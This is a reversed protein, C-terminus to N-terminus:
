PYSGSSSSSICYTARVQRGLFFAGGFLDPAYRACLSIKLFHRRTTGDYSFGRRMPLIENKGDDDQRESAFLCLLCVSAFLCLSLSVSLPLSVSLSCSISVCVSIYVSCIGACLSPAYSPSVVYIYIYVACLSACLKGSSPSDQCAKLYTAM